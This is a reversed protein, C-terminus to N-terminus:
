MIKIVVIKVVHIKILTATYLMLCHFVSLRMTLFSMLILLKLIQCYILFFKFPLLCFDILSEGQPRSCTVGGVDKDKYLRGNVIQLGTNKCVQILQKGFPNVVNDCNARNCYTSINPVDFFKNDTLNDDLQAVRSNLDGCVMCVGRESYKNHFKQIIEFFDVDNYKKYFTSNIHPIYCCCIYLNPSNDLQSKVCSIIYGCEKSEIIKFNNRFCKKYFVCIGGSKSCKNRNAIKKEYDPINDKYSVVGTHILYVIDYNNLLQIFHADRLKTRLGGNINWM